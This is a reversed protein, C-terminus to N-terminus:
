IQKLLEFIKQNVRPFPYQEAEKLKIWRVPSNTKLDEPSTTSCQFVTFTMSFHSFVHKVSGLRNECIVKLGTQDLILLELAKVQNEGSEVKKSPFEWLGGLMKSESRKLILFKDNHWVLGALVHIHPIRRSAKKAPYKEPVGSSYAKCFDRLPCYDCKPNKPSCIGSGLDMLAQNFDGPREQDMWASLSNSIRSVNHKTLNKLGLIRASVRKINGDIAPYPKNFAISLVANATYEGVGPLSRFQDWDSPIEGNYKTIVEHTARHFNRCRSYYGLGEWLKLAQGLDLKAADKLTPCVELWRSYYPIVTEVQTQQLM